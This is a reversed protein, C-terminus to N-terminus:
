SIINNLHVLYFCNAWNRWAAHKLGAVEVNRLAIFIAVEGGPWSQCLFEDELM